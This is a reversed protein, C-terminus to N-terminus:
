RGMAERRVGGEGGQLASLPESGLAGIFTEVIENAPRRLITENTFLEFEAGEPSAHLAPRIAIGRALLREPLSEADAGLVRLRAVNTGTEPRRVKCGPHLRL